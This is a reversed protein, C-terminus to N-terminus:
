VRVCEILHHQKPTVSWVFYRRPLNQFLGNTLHDTLTFNNGAAKEDFYFRAQEGPKIVAGPKPLLFKKSGSYMDHFSAFERKLLLTTVDKQWQAFETEHAKIEERHILPIQGLVNCFLIAANPYVKLTKEFPESSCKGNEWHSLRDEHIWKTISIKSHQWKFLLRATPDPDFVIIEQFHHLLPDPLFYGASPGFLLLQESQPKFDNLWDRLQFRFDYWLSHGYRFAKFHYPLGGSPNYFSVM